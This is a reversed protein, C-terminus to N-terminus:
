KGGGGGGGSSTSTQSQGVTGPNILGFLRQIGQYQADSQNQNQQQQDQGSKVLAQTAAGQGGAGQIAQSRQAAVERSTLDAAINGATANAAAEARAGGLNGSQSFNGAQQGLAGQQARQIQPQLADQTRSYQDTGFVGQGTAADQFAGGAAQDRIQQQAALQDDTQGAVNQLAGSDYLGEADQAGKELYPRAWDPVGSATTTTTPAPASGGGKWCVHSHPHGLYKTPGFGLLQDFTKM